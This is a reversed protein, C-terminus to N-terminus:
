NIADLIWKQKQNHWLYGEKVELPSPINNTYLMGTGLGHVMGNDYKSTFQAIAHLGINSELASTVWWGINKKSALQIWQRTEEFGGLLSPKLIIYQPKIAALLSEKDHCGILEEDLAIPVKAEACLSAMEDIQGAAIPQEISHVNIKRLSHLVEGIEDISFGGNADVRITLDPNGKRLEQLLSLEKDFDIAGIKIKIVDFGQEIKMFANEKMTEYDGMWVLGNIKLPVGDTFKATFMPSRLVDLLAMEVGMQISPHSRFKKSFELIESENEFDARAALTDVVGSLTDEYTAKDDTGLGWIPACEGIGKRGQSNQVVLFFTEKEVLSGRSTSAKFAFQLSYPIYSAKM